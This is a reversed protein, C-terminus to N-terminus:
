QMVILMWFILEIWLNMWVYLLNQLRTSWHRMWVNEPCVKKKFNLIPYNLSVLFGWIIRASHGVINSTWHVQCLINTNRSFIKTKLNHYVINWKTKLFFIYPFLIVLFKKPVSKQNGMSNLHYWFVDPHVVIFWFVVVMRLWAWGFIM